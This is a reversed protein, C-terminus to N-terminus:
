EEALYGFKNKLYQKEFMITKKTSTYCGFFGLGGLINSYDAPYNKITFGYDFYLSSSYLRTLSQDLSFIEIELPAISYRGKAADGDSIEALADDLLRRSLKLDNSYSVQMFDLGSSQPKSIIQLPIVKKYRIKEGALNRYYYVLTVKKAKLVELSSNEWAVIINATDRGILPGPIFPTSNYVDFTVANASNTKSTLKQGNPFETVLEIEKDFKPIWNKLYYYKAPNGYRQNIQSQDTTDSFYFRQSSDGYKIYLQANQFAPDEDLSLPDYGEVDYLRSVYAVQMTTDGRLVLNVSYKVPLDGKPSINDECSIICCVLGILLIFAAIRKM